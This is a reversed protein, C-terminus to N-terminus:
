SFMVSSDQTANLKDKMKTVTSPRKPFTAKNTRAQSVCFHLRTPGRKPCVSIHGQQDQSPVYVSIHGQQDQSPVCLFTAKNTRAQSVCFHLRSGVILLPLTPIGHFLEVLSCKQTHGLGPGVTLTEDGAM